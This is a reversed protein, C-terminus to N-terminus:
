FCNMARTARWRSRSTRRSTSRSEIGLERVTEGLQFNEFVLLSEFLSTGRPLSSWGQVLALPTHEHARVSVHQARLQQLLMRVSTEPTVSAHVPLTNIFPGITESARPVTDYRCARTAGFVIEEEGSYRHLLTTWAAQFITNLTVNERAALSKLADTQLKSLSLTEFQHGPSKQADPLNDVTLPTPAHVGKLLDRWFSESSTHNRAQLWAIFDSFKPPEPLEANPNEYLAFLEKLLSPFCRGDLIAHHFTWVVETEGVLTVRM